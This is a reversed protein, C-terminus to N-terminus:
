SFFSTLQFPLDEPVQVGEDINVEVAGFDIDSLDEEDEDFTAVPIDLEEEKEKDRENTM